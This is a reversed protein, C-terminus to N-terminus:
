HIDHILYPMTIHMLDYDKFLVVILVIYVFKDLFM